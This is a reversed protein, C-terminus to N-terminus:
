PKERLGLFGLWLAGAIMMFIGAYVLPLWPDRVAELISVKSWRGLAEDYSLQYVKWGQVTLPKNVELAVAETPGGKQYLTATSLFRKPRPPLMVLALREDLDLVQAQRLFSGCSVWGKVTRGSARHTAEVEAARATGLDHVEVFRQGVKAATELYQLTQIEWGPLQRLAATQERATGGDGAEGPSPSAPPGLEVRRGGEMEGTKRDVLALEAPYEELDFDTLALAFDLARERGERDVGVWVPQGEQLNMTLRELDNAGLHAGAVALFLGGHSLLYGLNALSLPWARRAAAFGLVLVFWATLLLYSWSGLIDYLGLRFGLSPPMNQPVAGQPFVGLLLGVAGFGVTAGIAAPISGLFRVLATGGGLGRGLGLLLLLGAGLLGNLPWALAPTLTNPVVLELALGVLLLGCPILFAEPFGWPPSWLPRHPTTSTEITV